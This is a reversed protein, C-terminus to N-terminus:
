GPPLRPGHSPRTADLARSGAPHGGKNSPCTNRLPITPVGVRGFNAAEPDLKGHTSPVDLRSHIGAGILEATLNGATQKRNEAFAGCVTDPARDNGHTEEQFADNPRGNDSIGTPTEAAGPQEM